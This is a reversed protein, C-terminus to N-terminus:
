EPDCLFGAYSFKYFVAPTGFVDVARGDVKDDEFRWTDDNVKIIEPM